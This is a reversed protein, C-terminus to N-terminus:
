AKLRGMKSRPGCFYSAFLAMGTHYWPGTTSFQWVFYSVRLWYLLLPWTRYRTCVVLSVLLLIVGM